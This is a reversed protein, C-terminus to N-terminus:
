VSNVPSSDKKRHYLLVREIFNERIRPDNLREAEELPMGPFSRVVECAFLGASFLKSPGNGHLPVMTIGCSPSREKFVFGCLGDRELEAVRAVCYSLVQETRNIRTQCTMLRPTAPDGELRMAERPVPLGSGVEPCVPVFSFYQGLTECIYRDRKHGGDYRVSEGLLCASVGIAIPPTM